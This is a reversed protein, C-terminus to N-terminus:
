ESAGYRAKMQGWTAPVTPTNCSSPEGAIRTGDITSETCQDPIPGCGDYTISFTEDGSFTDGSRSGQVTYSITITCPGETVETSCSVDVNTDDITGTCDLSYGDEEFSLPMGTCLTDTDTYSDTVNSTGCEYEVTDISWIGAWGATFTPGQALAPAAALLGVALVAIGIRRSM